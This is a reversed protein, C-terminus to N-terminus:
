SRSRFVPLVTRTVGSVVPPVAVASTAGPPMASPARRIAKVEGSAVSM